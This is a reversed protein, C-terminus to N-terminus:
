LKMPFKGGKNIMCVILKAILHQDQCKTSEFYQTQLERLGKGPDARTKIQGRKLSLCFRKVSQAYRNCSLTIVFRTLSITVNPM